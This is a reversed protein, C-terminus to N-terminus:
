VWQCAWTGENTIVKSAVGLNMKIEGTVTMKGRDSLQAGRKSIMVKFFALQDRIFVFLLCQHYVMLYVFFTARAHRHEPSLLIDDKKRQLFLDGTSVSFCEFHSVASRNMM